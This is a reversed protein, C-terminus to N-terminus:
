KFFIRGLLFLFFLALVMFARFIIALIVLGIDVLKLIVPVGHVFWARIKNGM